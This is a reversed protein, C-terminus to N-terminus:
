RAPATKVPEAPQTPPREAPESPQHQPVPSELPEVTYVRQPKGIKM